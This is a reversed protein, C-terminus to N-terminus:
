RDLEVLFFLPALWLTLAAAALLLCVVCLAAVGVARLVKM